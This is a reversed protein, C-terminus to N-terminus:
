GTLLCFGPMSNGSRRRHSLHDDKKRPVQKSPSLSRIFHPSVRNRASAATLRLTAALPKEAAQVGTPAGTPPNAFRHAM